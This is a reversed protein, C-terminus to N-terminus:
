RVAKVVAATFAANNGTLTKLTALDKFDAETLLRRRRRGVRVWKQTRPNYLKGKTVDEDTSVVDVFPVGFNDMFGVNRQLGTAAPYGGAPGQLMQMNRASLGSTQPPTSQDFVAGAIAGIATGAAAGWDIPM